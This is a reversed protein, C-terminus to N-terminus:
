RTEKVPCPRQLKIAVKLKLCINVAEAKRTLHIAVEFWERQQTEWEKLPNM